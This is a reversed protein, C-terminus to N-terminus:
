ENTNEENKDEPPGWPDTEIGQVLGARWTARPSREGNAQVEWLSVWGSVELELHHHCQDPIYSRIGYIAGLPHDLFVRVKRYQPSAPPNLHNM